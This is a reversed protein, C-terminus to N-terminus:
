IELREYVWELPEGNGRWETPKRLLGVSDIEPFDAVIETLAVDLADHQEPEWDNDALAILTVSTQTWQVAIARLSPGIAGLLARQVSLLMDPREIAMSCMRWSVLHGNVSNMM